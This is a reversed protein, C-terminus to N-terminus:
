EGKELEIKINTNIKGFSQEFKLYKLEEQSKAYLIGKRAEM